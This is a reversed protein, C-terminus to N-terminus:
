ADDRVEESRHCAAARGPGDATPLLELTPRQEACLDVRWACRPHFPCGPPLAEPSPPTGPIPTLRATPATLTPVSQLLSRTYPHAPNEYVQRLPGTEVIRGAYMVAIRSAHAAVVGLDHSILILAMRYDRQLESLLQLIQAQVTVDLATTPEDAIILRPRLAIAIAIMIRQRMGGSLQHPYDDIRRAPDPIGVRRMLDLAEARAKAKSLGRHVRLTEGIQRGIPHVPNLSSLPDQFVMSIEGGRVARMRRASATTLETGDFTIRGAAIRGAPRPLLGLIAQATVSKGSGSEGLLALTEGEAVDLSVGDLARVPGVRSDFEVVVDHLSLLSM